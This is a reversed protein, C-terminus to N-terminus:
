LYLVPNYLYFSNFHLYMSQWLWSLTGQSVELDWSHFGVEESFFGFSLELEITFDLSFTVFVNDVCDFNMSWMNQLIYFSILTLVSMLLHHYQVRKDKNKKWEISKFTLTLSVNADNAGQLRVLRVKKISYWIWDVSERSDTEEVFWSNMVMACFM